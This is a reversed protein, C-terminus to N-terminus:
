TGVKVGKMKCLGTFQSWVQDEVGEVLKTKLKIDKAM